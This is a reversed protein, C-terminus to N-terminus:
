KGKNCLDENILKFLDEYYAFTRTKYFKQNQYCRTPFDWESESQFRYVIYDEQRKRIRRCHFINEQTAIYFHTNKLRTYPQYVYRTGLPPLEPLNSVLIGPSLKFHERIRHFYYGWFQLSEREQFREQFSCQFMITLPQLNAKLRRNNEQEIFKVAMPLFLDNMRDMGIYIFHIDKVCEPNIVLDPPLDVSKLHEYRNYNPNKFLEKLNQYFKM